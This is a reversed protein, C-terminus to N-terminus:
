RVELSVVVVFLVGDAVPVFSVLHVWALPEVKQM